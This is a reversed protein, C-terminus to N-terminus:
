GRCGAWGLRLNLWIVLRLRIILCIPDVLELFFELLELTLDVGELEGGRNGTGLVM